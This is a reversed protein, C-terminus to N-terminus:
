SEFMSVHRAKEAEAGNWTPRPDSEPALTPKGAARVVLPEVVEMIGKHKKEMQAVSLLAPKTRMDADSLGHSKLLHAVAAEDKWARNGARGEVLKYGTKDGAETRTMMESKVADIWIEMLPILEFDQKLTSTTATAAFPKIDKATFASPAVASFVTPPLSDEFAKRLANCSAAAPCWRCADEDPHYQSPDISVERMTVAAQASEAMRECIGQVVKPTTEWIIPDDSVQPQCVVLLVREIQEIDAFGMMDIAELAGYAYLALQPNESPDVRMAGSKYDAVTLTKGDFSLSMCDATGFALEDAVGLAKGYHVRQELWVIGQTRLFEVFDVYSKVMELDDEPLDAITREKRLVSEAIAHLDTGRDAYKSSKRPLSEALVASPPCTNWRHASSAGLFAHATM